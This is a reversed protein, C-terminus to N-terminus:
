YVLLKFDLYVKPIVWYIWIFILDIILSDLFHLILLFHLSNLSLFWIYSSYKPTCLTEEKEKNKKIKKIDHM